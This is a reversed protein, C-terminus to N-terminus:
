SQGWLGLFRSVGWGWIGYGQVRAGRAFPLLGLRMNERVPLSNFIWLLLLMRSVSPPRRSPFFGQRAQDRRRARPPPQQPPRVPQHEAPWGVDGAGGHWRGAPNIRGVGCSDWWIPLVRLFFLHFTSLFGQGHTSRPNAEKRGAADGIGKPIRRGRGPTLHAPPRQQIEPLLPTHSPLPSLRRFLSIFM